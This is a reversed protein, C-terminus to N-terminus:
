RFIRANSELHKKLSGCVIECLQPICTDQMSYYVNLRDKRRSLIGAKLLTQLHRSANAQSLGTEEVLESVTKEHEMLCALIRLRSADSLAKFRDALLRFAENGLQLIGNKRFAM